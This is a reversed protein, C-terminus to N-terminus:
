AGLCPVTAGVYTNAAKAGRTTQAPRPVVEFSHVPEVALLEPYCDNVGNLVETLADWPRRWAM